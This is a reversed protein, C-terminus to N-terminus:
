IRYYMEQTGPLHPAFDFYCANTSGHYWYLSHSALPIPNVGSLLVRM